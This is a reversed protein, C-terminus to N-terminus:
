EVSFHSIQISNRHDGQFWLTNWCYSSTGMHHLRHLRSVSASTVNQLFTTGELPHPLFLSLPFVTSTSCPWMRLRTVVLPRRRTTVALFPLSRCPVAVALLWENEGLPGATRNRRRRSRARRTLFTFNIRGHVVTCALIM